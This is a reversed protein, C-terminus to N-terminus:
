RRTPDSTMTMIYHPTTLLRASRSGDYTAVHVSHMETWYLLGHVWDLSLVLFM